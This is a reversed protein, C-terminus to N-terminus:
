SGERGGADEGEGEGVVEVGVVGEGAEAAGGASGLVGGCPELVGLGGVEGDWGEGIRGAGAGGPEADVM